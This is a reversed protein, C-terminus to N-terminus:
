LTRRRLRQRQWRGRRGDSQKIRRGASPITPSAPITGSVALIEEVANNGTDGVFIDGGADVAVGQPSSFGSGLPLVSSYGSSALIEEVANNGTDAVFVNGSRDVAVGMPSSFGGGLPLITPNAAPITGNVAVIEKVANNGTDAVFVNGSADVAVGQPSNFGSGLSIVSTYGSSALIEGVASNGTDAVFINGSADVAVGGPGNFGSGLSTIAWSFHATQAEASSVLGGLASLCLVMLVLVCKGCRLCIEGHSRKDFHGAGRAAVRSDSSIVQSTACSSVCSPDIASSFLM